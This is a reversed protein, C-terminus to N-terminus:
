SMRRPGFPMQYAVPIKTLYVVEDRLPDAPRLRAPIPPLTVLKLVSDALSEALIWLLRSAVVKQREPAVGIFIRKCLL